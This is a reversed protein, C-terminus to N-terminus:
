KSKATRVGGQDKDFRFLRATARLVLSFSPGRGSDWGSGLNALRSLRASVRMAKVAEMVKKRSSEFPLIKLVEYFHESDTVSSYLMIAAQMRGDDFSLTKLIQSAQDCTLPRGHVFTKLFEIKDDDM